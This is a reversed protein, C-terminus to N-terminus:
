HLLNLDCRRTKHTHTHTKHNREKSWKKAEIQNEKKHRSYHIIFTLTCTTYEIHKASMSCVCKCMCVSISVSVCVCCLIGPLIHWTVWVCVVSSVLCHQALYGVCVCCLIGPLATGPPQKHHLSGLVGAPTPSLFVTKSCVYTCTGKLTHTQRDTQRDRCVYTCVTPTM